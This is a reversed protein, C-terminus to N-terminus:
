NLVVRKSKCYKKQEVQTTFSHCPELEQYPNPYQWGSISRDSTKAALICTQKQGERLCSSARCTTKRGRWLGNVGLGVGSYRFTRTEPPDAFDILLYDAAM